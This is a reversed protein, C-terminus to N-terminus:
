LHGAWLQRASPSPLPLPLAKPTSCASPFWGARPGVAVVDAIQRRRHEIRLAIRNGAEATIGRRFEACCPDKLAAGIEGGPRLDVAELAAVLHEIRRL